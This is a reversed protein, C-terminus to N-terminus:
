PLVPRSPIQMFRRYGQYPGFQSTDPLRGFERTMKLSFPKAALNRHTIQIKNNITIEHSCKSVQAM